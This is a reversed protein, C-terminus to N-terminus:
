PLLAGGAAAALVAIAVILVIVSGARLIRHNRRRHVSRELFRREDANFVFPRDRDLMILKDVHPDNLLYLDDRRHSKWSRVTDRLAELLARTGVPTDLEELWHRVSIWDRLWEDHSPEVYSSGDYGTDERALSILRADHFRQLVEAVRRNEAPEGYDLDDRFVRRRIFQSDAIAVMRTCVNQITVAYARDEAVLSEYVAIARKTTAGIIGGMEDYDAERLVRDGAGRMWCRRYLESLAFSLLPLPAPVFAVDDLLREVLYSSEFHLVAATAPEEIIQRLERRTMPPVAFRTSAWWPELATDRFLPEADSRVAVVLHLTPAARVASALASLFAAREWKPAGLTSLEELQDVIVLWPHDPRSSARVGVAATWSAVPDEEVPEAGLARTWAELAALPERGPRQPPLVTWGKARLASVLGAHIVSSKGSGSPGVVVTLGRTSVAEVLRQTVADRGFFLACDQERFSDLGRYPNADEALAPAPALALARNPVQFVFQGGDHRDFPFLQPVQRRDSGIAQAVCERVYIALEDATILNDQTYDAAGALGDLLARAFPSHAGSGEGRHNDLVDMALEDSSTSAFVQWAASSTYRDYRERYMKTAQPEVDRLTSWRFTGAFSCDLIVFMHRVPLRALADHMARMPLFGDREWRRADAPVLYGAPGTDSDAAIGHGAFYILLRDDPGLANPLEEQLLSLLDPLKADDDFMCWTEFGHDERLAEAIASADAVASRLPPIGESYADIGIVVSLSRGFLAAPEAGTRHPNMPLQRTRGRGLKSLSTMRKLDDRDVTLQKQRQQHAELTERIAAGMANADAFREEPEWAVARCLVAKFPDPCSLATIAREANRLISLTLERGSFCFMATMGLGYVDARATAEQPKELCEPATYLLTGLAGTRTGGTTDAGGVLDFDTLKPSGEGDLLINSPKIDRHVMGIAHARGVTETVGLIVPVVDDQKLRGELVVERLNGGPVLEMVFYYFGEDEAEPELVRVVAPHALRMMARAGRFFRDRRLQDGALNSHLVKIAVRRESHRDYAEWVVAFGGQGLRKLLSYRSNALSDGARLQGGERLRRRLDLIERDLAEVPVRAEHLTHRRARANELQESLAKVAANAYSPTPRASVPPHALPPSVPM